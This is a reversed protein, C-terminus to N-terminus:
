FIDNSTEICMLAYPTKGFAMADAGDFLSEVESADWVCPALHRAAEPM